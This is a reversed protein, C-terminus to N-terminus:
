NGSADRDRMLADYDAPTNIDRPADLDLDVFVVREDDAEVLARWLVGDGAEDSFEDLALRSVLFPHAIGDRYRTVAAWAGEVRWRDTMGTVAESSMTPLDGPAYVFADADVAGAGTLLSSMTGRDPDPNRAVVIPLEAISREIRDADHGTVVVVSELRAALFAGVTSGLVTGGDVALLLKQGSM